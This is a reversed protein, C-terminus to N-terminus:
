QQKVPVTTNGNKDLLQPPAMELTKMGAGKKSFAKKMMTKDVSMSDGTVLTPPPAPQTTAVTQAVATTQTTSAKSSTDCAVTAFVALFSLAFFYKKM